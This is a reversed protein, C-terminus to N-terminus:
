FHLLIQCLVLFFTALSLCPVFAMRGKKKSFIFFALGSLCAFQIIILTQSLSYFLSCSALFLFDGSGIGLPLLHAIVAIGLLIATLIHFQGLLLLPIQFILWVLLPYEQHKLDYISLTLGMILLLAQGPLIWGLSSALYLLGCSAEFLAYWPPTKAGCFSCAFGNWLQSFIPVLDRKRLTKQCSDCHSRPKVISKEPFRDIVLGLFSAFISGVLFFYLHIM